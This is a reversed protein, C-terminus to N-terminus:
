HNQNVQLITELSRHGMENAIRISGFWANGRVGHKSTKLDQPTTDLLLRPTCSTTAEALQKFNQSKM